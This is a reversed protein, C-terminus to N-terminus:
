ELQAQVESKLILALAADPGAVTSPSSPNSDRADNFQTRNNLVIERTLLNCRNYPCSPFKKCDNPESVLFCIDLM